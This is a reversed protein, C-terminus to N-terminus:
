RLPLLYALSHLIGLIKIFFAFPPSLFLALMEYPLDQTLCLISTPFFSANKIFALSDLKVLACPVPLSAAPSFASLGAQPWM